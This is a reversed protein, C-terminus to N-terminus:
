EAEGKEAQAFFLVNQINEPIAASNAAQEGFFLEMKLIIKATEGTLGTQASIIHIYRGHEESTGHM